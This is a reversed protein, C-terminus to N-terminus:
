LAPPPSLGVSLSSRSDADPSSRDASRVQMVLAGADSCCPEDKKKSDGRTGALREVECDQVGEGEEEGEVAGREGSM